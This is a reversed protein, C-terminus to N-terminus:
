GAAKAFFGGTWGLYLHAAAVVAFALTFLASLGRATYADHPKLGSWSCVRAVWISATALGVLAVFVRLGETGAMALAVFLLTLPILFMQCASSLDRDM